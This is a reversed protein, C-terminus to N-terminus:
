MDGRLPVICIFRWVDKGTNVFNHEEDPEVLFSDGPGFAANGHETMLMGQGEVGYLVHEWDHAHWPTKGGPMIEFLRMGVTPSDDEAAILKAVNVNEAGPMKALQPKRQGKLIAKV